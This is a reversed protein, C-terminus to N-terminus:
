IYTKMETRVETGFGLNEFLWMKESDFITKPTIM